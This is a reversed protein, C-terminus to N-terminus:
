DPLRILSGFVEHIEKPMACPKGRAPDFCAIRMKATVLVDGAREVQQAFAVQARGLSDISSVVDLLDDLRAPKLYDVTATRAVFAIGHERAMQAQEFGLARLWDTRAREMFRLYNAYYVMGAADTDEYYVRVPLIFNRNEANM